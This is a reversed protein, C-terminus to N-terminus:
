KQEKLSKVIPTFKKKMDNMATNIEKPSIYFGAAGARKMMNHYGKLEAVKKIAAVLKAVVDPPLDESGWVVMPGTVGLAPLGLEKFTPVDKFVPDREVHSLGLVRAKSEFGALNQISTFAFNVEGSIAANRAGPGSNFPIDKATVGNELLFLEGALMNISGRGPHAWRLKGPHAKADAIVDQPKKYPSNTAVFLGTIFQGIGGLPQMDTLPNVPSKDGKMMANTLFTGGNVVLLTYGDPRADKVAKAAIMSAAGPKNVVVMPQGIYEHMFSALGRAYTDTGGGASYGVMATIPKEPYQALSQQPIAALAGAAITLALVARCLRRSVGM